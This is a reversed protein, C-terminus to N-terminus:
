VGPRYRKWQMSMLTDLISLLEDSEKLFDRDPKNPNKIADIRQQDNLAATKRYLNNLTKLKENPTGLDYVVTLM